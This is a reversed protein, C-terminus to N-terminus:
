KQNEDLCVQSSSSGAVNTNCNVETTFGGTGGLGADVEVSSVPAASTSTVSVQADCSCGALFAILVIKKM